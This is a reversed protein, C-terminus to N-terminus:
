VKIEHDVKLKEWDVSIGDANLPIEKGYNKGMAKLAEQNTAPLYFGIESKGIKIIKVNTM